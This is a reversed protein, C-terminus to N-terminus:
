SFSKIRRRHAPPIRLAARYKAITRRAVKTREDSLATALAEDSMPDNRDEEALLKALRTRMAEAGVGAGLDASFLSRLWWTGHPTDISTGAVVRSITSKHLQLDDAVMQMTLPMLAATGKALAASQIALVHRAVKLLTANRGEIMQRIAKARTAGEAGDVITLAPLASRNLEIQWGDATRQAILDPERVSSHATSFATGPKPNFGRILGFIKRIETVDVNALKALQAWDGTALMPLHTLVTLMAETMVGAERAQLLLCESLSRAFLGVPEITQLRLLVAIVDDESCGLDQAIADTGRGLWGSPELAEVLAIAIRRPMGASVKAPLADLVHAVLSPGTSAYAEVDTQASRNFVGAWRPLWDDPKPLVPELVLAPTEAAQEELYRTLGLADARLIRLATQLSGSLRLRQVQTTNIRSRTSM